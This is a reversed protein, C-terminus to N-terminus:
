WVLIRAELRNAHGRQCAAYKWSVPLKKHEIPNPRSRTSANCLSQPNGAVTKLRIRGAVRAGLKGEESNTHEWSVRCRSTQVYQIRSDKVIPGTKVSRFSGMLVAASRTASGRLSVKSVLSSASSYSLIDGDHKTERLKNRDDCASREGGCVSDDDVWAPSPVVDMGIARYRRFVRSYFWPADTDVVFIPCIPKRVSHLPHIRTRREGAMISFLLGWHSFLVYVLEGGRPPPMGMDWFRVFHGREPPAM